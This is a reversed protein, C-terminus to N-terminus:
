FEPVNLFLGRKTFSNGAWVSDFYQLMLKISWTTKGNGCTNSYIYLSSGNKVFNGISEQIEALKVFSNYDCDDPVLKVIKQRDKPINSNDLMYKMELYRLCMNECDNSCVEKYICDEYM